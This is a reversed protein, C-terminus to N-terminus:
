CEGVYYDFLKQQSHARPKPGRRQQPDVHLSLQSREKLPQCQEHKKIQRRPKHQKEQQPQPARPHQIPPEPLKRPPEPLKRPPESQQCPPEPLKRPTEPLKRPPEPLQRSPEPLQRQSSRSVSEMASLEAIEGPISKPRARRRLCYIIVSLIILFLVAGGAISLVFILNFEKEPPCDINIQASKESVENQSICKFNKGSDNINVTRTKNIPITDYFKEFHELLNDKLFLSIKPSGKMDVECILLISKKACVFGVKPSSVSEIVTLNFQEKQKLTGDSKYVNVTYIREDDKKLEEIWLNGNDSIKCRKVDLLSCSQNPLKLKGVLTNGFMWKVEEMKELKESINLFVSGHLKGYVLVPNREAM